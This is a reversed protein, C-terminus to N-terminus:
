VQEFLSLLESKPILILAIIWIAFEVYFSKTGIYYKFFEGPPKRMPNEQFDVPWVVFKWHNRRGNVIVHLVDMLIHLFWGATVGIMFPIFVGTISVILLTIGSHAVSHYTDVLNLSPLPKDIIDPIACGIFIAVASFDTLAILPISAVIHTPYLV